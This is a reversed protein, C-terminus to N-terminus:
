VESDRYPGLPKLTLFQIASCDEVDQIARVIDWKHILRHMRWSSDEQALPVPLPNPPATINRSMFYERARRISDLHATTDSIAQDLEKLTSHAAVLCLLAFLRM